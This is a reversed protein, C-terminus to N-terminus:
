SEDPKHHWPTLLQQWASQRTRAGYRLPYGQPAAYSGFLRDWCSLNAGLNIATTGAAHHLHHSAPTILLWCLWGHRQQLWHPWRIASHRWLDLSATLLTGALYAQKDQCLLSLLASPLVYVFLPQLWLTNRASAWAGLQQSSHHPLHLWWAHSHLYRHQAYYLLDLGVFSLLFAGLAGPLIGNLSPLQMALQQGLWLSLLPILLGQALLGSGNLLWDGTSARGTHLPRLRELVLLLVFTCFPLSAWYVLAPSMLPSALQSMGAM